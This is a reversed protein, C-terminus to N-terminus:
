RREKLASFQKAFTTSKSKPRALPPLQTILLKLPSHEKKKRWYVKKEKRSRYIRRYIVSQWWITSKLQKWHMTSLSFPKTWSKNHGQVTIHAKSYFSCKREKSSLISSNPTHLVSWRMRTGTFLASKNKKSTNTLTTSTRVFKSTM